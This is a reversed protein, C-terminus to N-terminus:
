ASTTAAPKRVEYPPLPTTPGRRAQRGHGAGRGRALKYFQEFARAHDIRSGEGRRRASALVADVGQGARPGLRRSSCRLKNARGGLRRPDQARPVVMTAQEETMLRKWKAPNTFKLLRLDDEAVPTLTRHAAAHPMKNGRARAFDIVVTETDNSM